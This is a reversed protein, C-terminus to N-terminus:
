NLSSFCNFPGAANPPAPPTRSNATSAQTNQSGESYTGTTCPFYNWLSKQLRNPKELATTHINLPPDETTLGQGTRQGNEDESDTSSLM